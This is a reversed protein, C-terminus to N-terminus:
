DTGKNSINQGNPNSSSLRRTRTVTHNYQPHITVITSRMDHFHKQMGEYYTSLNKSDARYELIAEILSAVYGGVTAEDRLKELNSSTVSYYCSKTREIGLTKPDTAVTPLLHLDINEKRTKLQGKKAGSKYRLANGDKDKKFVVTDLKITGGFLVASVVRDSNVSFHPVSSITDLLENDAASAPNAVEKLMDAIELRSIDCRDRLEEMHTNFLKKDVAIGNHTMCLTALISRMSKFWFALTSGKCDEELLGGVLIRYQDIALQATARVDAKLYKMLLMPNARESGMGLNFMPSIWQDKKFDVDHRRCCSELSVGEPLFQGYILYDGKATDWIQTNRLAYLLKSKGVYFMLYGLDFQLNHGIVVDATTLHEVLKDIQTALTGPFFHSEHCGYFDMIYDSNIKGLEIEVYGFAVIRNPNLPGGFPTAAFVQSKANQTTELDLVIAKM